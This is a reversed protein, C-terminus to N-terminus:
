VHSQGKKRLARAFDEAQEGLGLDYLDLLTEARSVLPFRGYAPASGRQGRPAARQVVLVPGAAGPGAEGTSKLAPDLQRVWDLPDGKLAKVDLRPLGNLDFDPTYARAAVVGGLALGPQVMKELRQLLQAPEAPFGSRDVYRERDHAHRAALLAENLSRRPLAALTVGRNSAREIEGLAALMAMTEHVTPISCGALEAVVRVQLPPECRLWGDLLVKLVEQRPPTWGGRAATKGAPAELEPFASRAAEAVDELDPQHGPLVVWTGTARAILALPKAAEPRLLNRLLHWEEAIRKASMRPFDALLIAWQLDPTRAAVFALRILAAHLDRAGSHGLKLDLVMRRDPSILDFGSEGGREAKWGLGVALRAEIAHLTPAGSIDM